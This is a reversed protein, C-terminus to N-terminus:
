TLLTLLEERTLATARDAGGLAADALARKRDQLALIREEVTDQTVLRYVLVPRTQGIRHARDAAQDEVAPNWWPDLIFIHDAATLNLGTGGARISVLM